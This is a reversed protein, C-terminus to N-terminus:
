AGVYWFVAMYFSEQQLSSVDGSPSNLAAVLTQPTTVLSGNTQFESFYGVIPAQSARVAGAYTTLLGNGDYSLPTGVGLGTNTVTIGATASTNVNDLTIGYLGPKDWCTVKGSGATTSPGILDSSSVSSNPGYSTLGVTRGVITGFLTGYNKIGDDSLFIPQPANLGSATNGCIVIAPRQAGSVGLPVNTGTSVGGMGPLNFPDYGDNNVDASAKDTGGAIQATVQGWTVFEGGKFSAVYGDAADFQGLPERGANLVVLAM